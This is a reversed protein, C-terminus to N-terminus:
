LGRPILTFHDIGIKAAADAREADLRFV